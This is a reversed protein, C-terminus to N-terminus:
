VAVGIIGLLVLGAGVVFTEVHWRVPARAHELVPNELHGSKRLQEWRERVIEAADVAAPRKPARQATRDVVGRLRGLMSLDIRGARAASRGGSPAAWATFTGYATLLTLAWRTEIGRIAPWPVDITRTVNVVRVGGDSVEVRPRWFAAWCAGTVLALWPLFEVADRLGGDGATAVAVVACIAAVSVVLVRGFVPRYVADM